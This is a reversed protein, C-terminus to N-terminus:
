TDGATLSAARMLLTALAGCVLLAAAIRFAWSYGGTGAVVDGTIIPAIIIDEASKM